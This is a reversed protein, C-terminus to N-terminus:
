RNRRLDFDEDKWEVIGFTPLSTSLEYGSQQADDAKSSAPMGSYSRAEGSYFYTRGIVMVTGEDYEDDDDDLWDDLEEWNGESADLQREYNVFYQAKRPEPKKQQQENQNEGNYPNLKGMEGELLRRELGGAIGQEMVMNAMLENAYDDMEIEEGMLMVLADLGFAVSSLSRELTAGHHSTPSPYHFGPHNETVAGGNYNKNPQKEQGQSIFHLDTVKFTLPDWLGKLKRAVSVASDVTPFAGIPILPRFAAIEDAYEEYEEDDSDDYLPISSDWLPEETHHHDSEELLERRLLERLQKLRQSSTEDPELAIMSPGNFEDFYPQSSTTEEPQSSKASAQSQQRQKAQRCSPTNTMDNITSNDTKQNSTFDTKRASQQPQSGNNNNNQQKMMGEANNQEQKAAQAKLRKLLDRQRKKERGKIEESQILAQIQLYETDDQVPDDYNQLGNDEEEVDKLIESMDVMTDPLPMVTWQNLTIEFPEINYKEIVKALDLAIDSLKSQPCFPHFLRIAPPWKRYIRDNAFHRARQLTDWSEDPPIVCLATRYSSM